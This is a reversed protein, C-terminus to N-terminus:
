RAPHPRHPVQPKQAQKTEIKNATTVCEAFLGRLRICAQARGQSVQLMDLNSQICEERRADAYGAFAEVFKAWEQPAHQAIHAAAFILDHDSL